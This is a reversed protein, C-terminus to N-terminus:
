DGRAAEAVVYSDHYFHLGALKGERVTFVQAWALDYTRGTARIRGKHHGLAVVKDRQAIFEEVEMGTFEVGEAFTTYYQLVGQPGHYEGAWPLLEKPGPSVLEVDEALLSMVGPVDREQLLQYFKQVVQVNQKKGM